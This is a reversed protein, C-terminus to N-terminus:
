GELRWDDGFLRMAKSESDDATGNEDVFADDDGICELVDWYEDRDIVSYNAVIRDVFMSVSLDGKRGQIWDWSHATFVVDAEHKEGRPIVHRFRRTFDDLGMENCFASYKPWDHTGYDGVTCEVTDSILDEDSIQEGHAEARRRASELEQMLWKWSERGFRITAEHGYRMAVGPDAGM